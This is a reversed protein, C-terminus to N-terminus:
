VVMNGGLTWDCVFLLTNMLPLLCIWLVIEHRRAFIRNAYNFLLVFLTVLLLELSMPSLQITLNEDTALDVFMTFLGHELGVM